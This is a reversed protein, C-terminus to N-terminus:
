TPLIPLLTPTNTPTNRPFAIKELAMCSNCIERRGPEGCQRCSFVDIHMEKKAKEKMLPLLRLFNYVLSEKSGKQQAELVNLLDRVVARFSHVANPCEMFRVPFNMLFAYAAVEKEPCFYLPKVRPVFSPLPVVGARPGIAASLSLNGKLFNMLISQCEDDVNHGTAIADFDRAHKNLLFRRLTGCTTCHNRQLQMGDLTKGFENEYSCIKLPIGHQACFLHLDGLTHERYGAIGEDVALATVHYGFKKLLYLLTTSDKGGSAAVCIKQDKDLLGYKKITNSVKKEFAHIFHKKCLCSAIASWVSKERCNKERCVDM